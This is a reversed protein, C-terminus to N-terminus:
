ITFCHRSICLLQISPTQKNLYENESPILSMSYPVIFMYKFIFQLNYALAPSGSPRLNQYPVFYYTCPRKISCTKVEITASLVQNPGIGVDKYTNAGAIFLYIRMHLKQRSETTQYCLLYTCYM